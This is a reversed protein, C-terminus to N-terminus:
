RRVPMGGLFLGIMTDYLVVTSLVLGLVLLASLLEAYFLLLFGGFLLNFRGTLGSPSLLLYSNLQDSPGYGSARANELL